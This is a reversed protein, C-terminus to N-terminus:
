EWGGAGCLEQGKKAACSKTCVEKGSGNVNRLLAEEVLEIKSAIKDEQTKKEEVNVDKKM